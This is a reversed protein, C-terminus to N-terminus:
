RPARVASATSMTVKASSSRLRACPKPYKSAALVALLVAVSARAAIPAVITTIEPPRSRDTPATIESVLQRIAAWTPSEGPEITAQLASPRRAPVAAPTTLAVSTTRKRRGDIMTVSAVMNMTSPSVSRTSSCGPPDTGGARDAAKVPSAMGPAKGAGARTRM